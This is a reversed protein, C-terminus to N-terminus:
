ELETRHNDATKLTVVGSSGDLRVSRGHDGGVDEAEVPIGKSKLARRSAEVNRKGVGEAIGTFDFMESGGVLKARMRKPEAGLEEMERVMAGVATDAFKGASEGEANESSPLMVHALGSVGAEADHIAVAVCSGLGFTSLEDGNGSVAYEAIGVEVTATESQGSETGYTKM